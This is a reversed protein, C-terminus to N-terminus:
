DSEGSQALRIQVKRYIVAPPKDQRQIWGKLAETRKQGKRRTVWEGIVHITAPVALIAVFIKVTLLPM